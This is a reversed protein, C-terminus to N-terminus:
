RFMLKITDWSRLVVSPAPTLTATYHQEGAAARVTLRYTFPGAQTASRYATRDLYVYRRQGTPVLSTLLTFEPEAASKRYLDFGTVDAETPVEWEVRVDAGDLTASLVTATATAALGSLLLPSALGGPPFLGAAGLAARLAFRRIFATLLM